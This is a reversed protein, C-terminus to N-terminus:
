TTASKLWKGMGPKALMSFIKKGVYKLINRAAEFGEDTGGVIFTLTAAKAGAVGVQFLRM